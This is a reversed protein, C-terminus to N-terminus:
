KKNDGTTKITENAYYGYGIIYTGVLGIIMNVIWQNILGGYMEFMFINIFAILVMISGNLMIKINSM